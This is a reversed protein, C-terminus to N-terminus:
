SGYGMADPRWTSPQLVYNFFLIYLAESTPPKQCATLPSYHQLDSFGIQGVLLPPMQLTQQDTSQRNFELRSPSFRAQCFVCPFADNVQGVHAGNVSIALGDQRFDHALAGLEDGAVYVCLMKQTFQASLQLSTAHLSFLLATTFM